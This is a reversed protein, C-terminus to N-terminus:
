ALEHALHAEIVTMIFPPVRAARLEALSLVGVGAGEQLDIDAPIIGGRQVFMSIHNGGGDADVIDTVFEPAAVDIGTEELMERRVAELPTEGAELAGGFGAWCAPHVITPKDDRLHMLLRRDDTVILLMACRQPSSGM